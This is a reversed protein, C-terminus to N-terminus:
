DKKIDGYEIGDKIKKFNQNRIEQPSKPVIIHETSSYIHKPKQFPDTVKPEEKPEPEIETLVALWKEVGTLLWCIFLQAILILILIIITLLEM